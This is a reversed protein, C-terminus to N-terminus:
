WDLTYVSVICYWSILQIGLLQYHLTDMQGVTYNVDYALVHTQLANMIEYLLLLSIYNPCVQILM